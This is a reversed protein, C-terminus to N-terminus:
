LKHLAAELEKQKNKDFTIRIKMEGRAIKYRQQLMKICMLAQRKAPQDHKVPFHIDKIATRITEPTFRRKTTPHVCKEVIIKVIDSLISSLHV